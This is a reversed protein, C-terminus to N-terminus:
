FGKRLNNVIVENDFDDGILWVIEDCFLLKKVVVLLESSIM